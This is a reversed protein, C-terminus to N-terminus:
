SRDGNFGEKLQRFTSKKIPERNKFAHIVTKPFRTFLSKMFSKGMNDKRSYIFYKVPFYFLFLFAHGLPYLSLCVYLKNYYANLLENNRNRAKDSRKHWLVMSEDKIIKLNNDLIKCTLYWEEGGYIFHMPYTGIKDYISKRHMCIGGLFNNFRYRKTSKPQIKTDIEDPSQFDYVEGTIIAITEDEKIADYAISVADKHLVGDNDLYFIFEGNCYEIGRNRGGACGYNKDLEVIQIEPFNSKTLELSNDSSGNDILIVETNPYSQDLASRIARQTEDARNWNLIQISILPYKSSDTQVNM